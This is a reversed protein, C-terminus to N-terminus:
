DKVLQSVVENLKNANSGKVLLTANKPLFDRCYKVIDISSDFHIHKNGFCEGAIKALDGVTLLFDVGNELAFRGVEKHLENSFEGSEGLNGLIFWHPNQLKEIALIAAKVSDPNANYSDDIIIAGNFATKRELRGKYGKFNALGLSINNVSCDIGLALISATLANMQNHKGLVQLKTIITGKISSIILEDEKGISEIYCDSGEKGYTLIELNRYNLDKIWMAAYDSQLNICMVGNAMLGHFIEGKAQAIGLLSSFFGIHALMVNNIAAITPMAIHSLYYMEGSHNMGMEIIAVKHERSLKLLTLPVGWHNNLNGETALVHKEGFEEICISKLMEKVTTKGNSGTIAIVPIDFILRYYHALEGLALTTDKVYILNPIDLSFKENVIFACCGKKHASDVFSHGDQNEGIIAVFLVSANSNIKRSDIVVDNILQQPNANASLKGKCMRAIYELSLEIM